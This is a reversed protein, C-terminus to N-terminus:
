AVASNDDARCATIAPIVHSPNLDVPGAPTWNRCARSWREPRERRAAEYVVARHKLIAADEGAHRQAPTVFRISSHLHVNNYWHVFDAVWARAAEISAFPRDPYEPRYKLTHFLSESFPNDNSVSPRSYSAAVGLRELTALLTSGTMPAGNDAHLVLNVDMACEDSCAREVLISSHIASEEAHVDWGVIKRSFIDAILYLYFFTGRIPARLWTIDWSWVQNPGDAHHSPVARKTPQRARDRRVNQQAERLIRQITSESAVYVGKDALRPVIQKPSVNRFEPSNAINLVHQREGPSLANAPRHKPGRRRDELAGARWRQYTRADLGLEECARELRAGAHVAETVLQTIM